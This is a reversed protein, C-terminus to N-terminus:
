RSKKSNDPLKGIAQKRQRNPSYDLEAGDNKRLSEIASSIDSPINGNPALRYRYEIADGALTTPVVFTSGDGTVGIAFMRFDGSVDWEDFEDAWVVGKIPRKRIVVCLHSALTDDADDDDYSELFSEDDTFVLVQSTNAPCGVVGVRISYRGYTAKPIGSSFDGILRPTRHLFESDADIGPRTFIEASATGSQLTEISMKATRFAHGVAAGELIRGYFVSAAARAARNTIPATSGIAIPVTDSLAKAIDISDCANLYILRPPKDFPLYARLAEASLPVERGSENSLALNLTSGHASIHLIDPRTKAIAHPLEEASTHPLFVFAVPEGVADGFRRQLETVERELNLASAEDAKSGIYLVKM